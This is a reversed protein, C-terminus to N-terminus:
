AILTDEWRDKFESFSVFGEEKAREQVAKLQYENHKFRIFQWQAPAGTKIYARFNDQLKKWKVNVRYIHNTDELGDIAWIVHFTKEPRNHKKILEGYSKWFAKNRVGGNTSLSFDVDPWETLFYDTIEYLETNTAADGSCGCFDVRLLSPYREYDFHTKMFELTLKHKNIKDKQDEQERPCGPCAANCYDSLEFHLKRIGTTKHYWM